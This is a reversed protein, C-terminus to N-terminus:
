YNNAIIRAKEFIFLQNHPKKGTVFTTNKWLCAIGQAQIYYLQIYIRYM